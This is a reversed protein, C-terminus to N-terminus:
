AKSMCEIGWSIYTIKSLEFVEGDLKKFVHFYLHLNSICQISWYVYTIKILKFVRSFSFKLICEIPWNIYTIIALEFMREFSLKTTCEIWWYIYMIRALKFGRCIFTKSHMWNPLLHLYNKCGQVIMCILTKFHM